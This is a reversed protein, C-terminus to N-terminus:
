HYTHHQKYYTLPLFLLFTACDLREFVGRTVDAPLQNFSQLEAAHRFQMENQIKRLFVHLADLPEQLFHLLIRGRRMLAQNKTKQRLYSDKIELIGRCGCGAGISPASTM